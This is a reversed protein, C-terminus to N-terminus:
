DESEAHCWGAPWGGGQHALKFHDDSGGRGGGGGKGHKRKKEGSAGARGVGRGVEWRGGIVPPHRGAHSEV